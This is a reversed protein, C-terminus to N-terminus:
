GYNSADRDELPMVKDIYVPQYMIMAATTNLHPWNPQYDSFYNTASVDM